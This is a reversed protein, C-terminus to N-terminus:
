EHHLAEQKFLQTLKKRAEHLRWSVTSEKISLIQAAEHHTLGELHVLLITEKFGEPFTNLSNLVQWAFIENDTADPRTTTQMHHESIDEHNNHKQQTRNWDKACNILLRYLWSTFAADFHFQDICRGLKICAQQTIDEADERRGCWRYAFKFLTDYHLALLAEFAKADGTQAQKILAIEHM